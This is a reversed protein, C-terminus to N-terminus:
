MYESSPGNLIFIQKLKEVLAPLAVDKTEKEVDMKEVCVM